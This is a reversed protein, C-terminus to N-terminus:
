PIAVSLMLDTSNWRTRCNPALKKSYPVNLQCCTEKFKEERKPTVSWYAVSSRISEIAESIISLGDKVILNLIHACCRMHLLSGGLIFRSPPIKAFILQIMADNTSCNDLTITSVKRDLNWDLLCQVLSDYLVEATHPAPM